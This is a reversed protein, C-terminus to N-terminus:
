RCQGWPNRCPCFKAREFYGAKGDLYIHTEIIDCIDYYIFFLFCCFFCVICAHFFVNCLLDGVKIM